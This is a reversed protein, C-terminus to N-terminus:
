AKRSHEADGAVARERRATQRQVTDDGVAGSADLTRTRTSEIFQTRKENDVIPRFSSACLNLNRTRCTHEVADAM